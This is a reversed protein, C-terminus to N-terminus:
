FISVYMILASLVGVVLCFVPWNKPVPKYETDPKAVTSNIEGM